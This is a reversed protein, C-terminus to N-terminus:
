LTMPRWGPTPTDSRLNIKPVIEKRKKCWVTVLKYCLVPRSESVAQLLVKYQHRHDIQEAMHSDRQQFRFEERTKSLLLNALPFGPMMVKDSSWSTKARLKDTWHQRKIWNWLIEQTGLQTRRNPRMISGPLASRVLERPEPKIPSVSLLTQHHYIEQPQSEEESMTRLLSTTLKREWFWM